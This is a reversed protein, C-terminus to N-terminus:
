AKVFWRLRFLVAALSWVAMLFGVAYALSAAEPSHWTAPTGSQQVHTAWATLAARLGVTAPQTTEGVAAPLWASPVSVLGMLRAVAGSLLFVLIANMGLAVLPVAWGRRGRVDIAYAMAGLALCAMGATFVAYSPTWLQKNIPVAWWGPVDTPSPDTPRECRGGSSYAL